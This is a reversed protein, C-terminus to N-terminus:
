PPNPNSLTVSILDVFGNAAEFSMFSMPRNDNWPAYGSDTNLITVDNVIIWSNSGSATEKYCIVRDAGPIPYVEMRLGYWVYTSVTGFTLTLDTVTGDKKRFIPTPGSSFGFSYGRDGYIDYENSKISMGFFGGSNTLMFYGQMRVAKTDPLNSYAPNSLKFGARHLSYFGSTLQRCYEGAEPTPLPIESTVYNLPGQYNDYVSFYTWNDTPMSGSYEFNETLGIWQKERYFLVGTTSNKKFLM